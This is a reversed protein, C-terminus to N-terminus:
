TCFMTIAEKIIKHVKQIMINELELKRAEFMNHNPEEKHSVTDRILFPLYKHIYKEKNKADKLFGYAMKHTTGKKEIVASLRFCCSALHIQYLRKSSNINKINLDLYKEDANFNSVLKDCLRFYYKTAFLLQSDERNM